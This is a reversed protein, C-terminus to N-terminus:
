LIWFDKSFSHNLTTSLQLTNPWTWYEELLDGPYLTGTETSSIWIQTTVNLQHWYRGLPVYKMLRDLIELNRNTRNLDPVLETPKITDEDGMHRGISVTIDNEM